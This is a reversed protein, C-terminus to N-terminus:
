RIRGAQAPSTSFHAGYFDVYRPKQQVKSALNCLLANVNFLTCTFTSCESKPTNRHCFRPEVFEAGPDASYKLAGQNSVALDSLHLSNCSDSSRQSCPCAITIQARDFTLTKAFDPAIVKRLIRQWFLSTSRIQKM